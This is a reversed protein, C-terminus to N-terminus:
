AIHRPAASRGLLAPRAPFHREAGNLTPKEIQLELLRLMEVQRRKEFAVRIEIRHAQPVRKETNGLMMIGKAQAISLVTAFSAVIKNRHTANQDIELHHFLPITLPKGLVGSLELGTEIERASGEEAGDKKQRLTFSLSAQEQDHVM